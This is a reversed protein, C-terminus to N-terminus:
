FPLSVGFVAFAVQEGSATMEVGGTNEAIANPTL